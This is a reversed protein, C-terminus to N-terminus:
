ITQIYNILEQKIKDNFYKPSIIKIHPIWSKIINDIDEEHTVKFSVVLNGDDKEKIIKQSSLQKKLKFYHAISKDVEVVVDFYDEDDFFPSLVKNPLQSLYDDLIFKSSLVEISKLKSILYNHIKDTDKNKALLYWIGDINIVKVPHLYITTENLNIKIENQSTIANELDNLIKSHLNISEFEYPKIYYPISFDKYLLKKFLQKTSQSFDSGADKIINLSLTLTTVEELSLNIRNLSFGKTFVLQKQSNLEIPFHSLREYVDRQITRRSVNFESSLEDMTPKDDNSLLTLISTLRYLIKDYDKVAM